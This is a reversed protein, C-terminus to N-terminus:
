NFRRSIKEIIVYKFHLKTGNNIELEILVCINIKVLIVRMSVQVFMTLDTCFNDFFYIYLFLFYVTCVSKHCVYVSKGFIKSLIDMKRLNESIGPTFLNILFSTNKIYPGFYYHQIKNDNLALLHNRSINIYIYIFDKNRFQM